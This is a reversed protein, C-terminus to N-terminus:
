WSCSCLWLYRSRYAGPRCRFCVTFHDLEPRRDWKISGTGRRPIITDFSM